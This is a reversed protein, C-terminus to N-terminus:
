QEVLPLQLRAPVKGRRLQALCNGRHECAEGRKREEGERAEAWNKDGRQESEEKPKM